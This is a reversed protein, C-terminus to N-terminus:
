RLVDSASARAKIRQAYGALNAFENLIAFPAPLGALYNLMPALIVDAITIQQGCFFPQEALQKAAVTLMDKVKPLLGLAVDSRVQGNEGKPFAFELMFERVVVRDFDGVLWLSWQEVKARAWSEQPLLAPTPHQQEIFHLIALTESLAQGDQCLVPMKGAPNMEFHAASKFPVAQQGDTMAVQYALGKEACALMVSQVFNSKPMGYIHITM